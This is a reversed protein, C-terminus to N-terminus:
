WIYGPNHLKLTSGAHSRVRERDEDVIRSVRLYQPLESLCSNVRAIFWFTAGSNGAKREM